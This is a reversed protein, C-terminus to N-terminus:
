MTESDDEGYDLAASFEDLQAVQKTFDLVSVAKHSENESPMDIVNDRYNFWNKFFFCSSAPNLKGQLTAQELFSALFGRATQAIRKREESCGQGQSWNLLTQRVIHLSLCLSEVGPRLSSQECLKFYQDIRDRVEEDTRPQGMDHLERLSAVIEQTKEPRLEELKGQPFNNRAM